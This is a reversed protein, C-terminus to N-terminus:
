EKPRPESILVPDPSTFEVRDATHKTDLQVTQPEPGVFVIRKQQVTQGDAAGVNVVQPQPSDFTVTRNNDGKQQAFSVLTFGTLILTFLTKM